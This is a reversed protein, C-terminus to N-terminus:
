LGVLCCFAKLGAAVLSAVIHLRCKSNNVVHTPSTSRVQWGCVQQQKNVPLLVEAAAAVSPTLSNLQKMENMRPGNEDHKEMLDTEHNNKERGRITGLWLM